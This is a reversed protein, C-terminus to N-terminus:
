SRQHESGIVEALKCATAHTLFSISKAGNVRRLDNTILSKSRIMCENAWNSCIHGSRGWLAPNYAVFPVLHVVKDNGIRSVPQESWRHVNSAVCQSPAPPRSRREPKRMLVSPFRACARSKIFRWIRESTGPLWSAFLSTRGQHGAGICASTVPRERRRDRRLQSRSKACWTRGATLIRRACLASQTMVGNV